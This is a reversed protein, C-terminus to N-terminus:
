GQVTAAVSTDRSFFLLPDSETLLDNVIFPSMPYFSGTLPSLVIFIIISVIIVCRSRPKTKPM